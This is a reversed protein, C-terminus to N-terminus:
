DRCINKWRTEVKMVLIICAQKELVEAKNAAFMMRERTKVDFLFYHVIFNVRALEAIAIFNAIGRPDPATHQYM